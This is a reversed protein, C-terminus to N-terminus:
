QCTIFGPSNYDPLPGGRQKVNEAIRARIENSGVGLIYSSCSKWYTFQNLTEDGFYPLQYPNQKLEKKEAYGLIQLGSKMAAEAVVLGHGSYGLLISKTAKQIIEHVV